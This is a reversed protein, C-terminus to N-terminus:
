ESEIKKLTEKGPIYGEWDTMDDLIITAASREFALELERFLIATLDIHCAWFNDIEDPMM